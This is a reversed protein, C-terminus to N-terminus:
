YHPPPVNGEEGELQNSIMLQIQQKLLSVERRLAEIDGQQRTVVDNLQQVSDEQFSLQTQLELLEDNM